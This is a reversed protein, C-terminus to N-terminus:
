RARIIREKCAECRRALEVLSAGADIPMHQPESTPMILQSEHRYGRRIMEEVIEGHRKYASSPDVFQMLKGLRKGRRLSGALMHLEVHEGLLHKRCMLSPNVMWMRM